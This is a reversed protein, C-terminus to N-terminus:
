SLHSICLSCLSTSVEYVKKEAETAFPLMLTEVTRPPLALLSNEGVSQEKSHRIVIRSLLSRLVNLACVNHEDYPKEICSQWFDERCFQPVRM